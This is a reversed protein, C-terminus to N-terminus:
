KLLTLHKITEIWGLQQSKQKQKKNKIKKITTIKLNSVQHRIKENM